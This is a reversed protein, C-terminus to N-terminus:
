LQNKASEKHGPDNITNGQQTYSGPKNENCKTNHTKLIRYSFEISNYSFASWMKLSECYVLRSIKEDYVKYKTNDVDENITLPKITTICTYRYTYMTHKNLPPECIVNALRPPHTTM